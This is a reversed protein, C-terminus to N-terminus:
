GDFRSPILSGDVITTLLVTVRGDKVANTLAVLASNTAFAFAQGRFVQTDVFIYFM